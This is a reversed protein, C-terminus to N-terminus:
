PLVVYVTAIQTNQSLFYLVSAYECGLLTGM